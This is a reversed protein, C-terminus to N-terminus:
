NISCILHIRTQFRTKRVLIVSDTHVTHLTGILKEGVTFLYYSIILCFRNLYLILITVDTHASISRHSTHTNPFKKYVTLSNAHLTQSHWRAISTSRMVLRDNLLLEIHIRSKWAFSFFVMKPLCDTQPSVTNVLVDKHCRPKRTWVKYAFISEYFIHKTAYITEADRISIKSEMKFRLKYVCHKNTATTESLNIKIKNRPRCVFYLDCLWCEVSNVCDISILLFALFSLTNTFRICRISYFSLHWRSQDM